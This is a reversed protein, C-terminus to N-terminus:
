RVRTVTIRAVPGIFRHAEALGSATLGDAATVVGPHVTVRDVASTRGADFGTGGLAPVTAATESNAETGADWAKVLATRSGSVALSALDWGAAGTFGDNTAALMSAVTLRLGPRREGELTLTVATGPAVGTDAAEAEVVADNGRAEALFAATAGGEALEELGTTATEGETWGQYGSRHLVAAPPTLPQANTLNAVTVQYRVSSAGRNQGCGAAALATLAAM